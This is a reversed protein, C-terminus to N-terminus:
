YDLAMPCLGEQSGLLGEALWSIRANQPIRFNIATNVVARQRDREQALDLWEVAGWGTEQLDM